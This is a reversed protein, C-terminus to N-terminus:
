RVHPPAEYEPARARPLLRPIQVFFCALVFTIVFCDGGHM